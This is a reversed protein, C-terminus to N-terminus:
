RDIFHSYTWDIVWNGEDDQDIHACEFEVIPRGNTAFGVVRVTTPGWHDYAEVMDGTKLDTPNTVVQLSM